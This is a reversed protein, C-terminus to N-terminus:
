LYEGCADCWAWGMHDPALERFVAHGSERAHATAHGERSDACGVHGCADCARLQEPAGCGQCADGRPPAPAPRVHGCASM